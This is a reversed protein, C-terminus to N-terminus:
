QKPNGDEDDHGVDPALPDARDQGLIILRLAVGLFTIISAYLWHAAMVRRFYEADSAREIHKPGGVVSGTRGTIPRTTVGSWEQYAAIGLLCLGAIMLIYSLVRM